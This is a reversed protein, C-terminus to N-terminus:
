PKSFINTLAERLEPFKFQFNKELFHKPTARCSTLALSAETRMLWSGIRVAFAPVPPSWPRHFARRMQRMFEANTEPNPSVANFVGAIEAREIADVFMRSLDAIHVWSILQRGSGVHGGLFLRTVKSLVQLFGGNPGLVVGLRLLVKRTKPVKATRFAEEWNKCVQAMFDNGPPSTEDNGRDATDGYIGVGSAQVWVAPPQACRSIADALARVSDVRSDLIERRNESTHRCNVSRGTLNVVARAGDLHQAWDAATKGNWQAYRIAGIQHSPARTLVIADYNKAVLFKALSNGVFGSGGALVIWTKM